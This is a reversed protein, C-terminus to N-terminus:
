VITIIDIKGISVTAWTEVVLVARMDEQSAEFKVMRGFHGGCDMIYTQDAPMDMSDLNLDSLVGCVHVTEGTEDMLSITLDQMFRVPYFPDASGAFVSFTIYSIIKHM